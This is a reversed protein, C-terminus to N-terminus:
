FANFVLGSLGSRILREERIHELREAADDASAVSREGGSMRNLRPCPLKSVTGLRNLINKSAQYFCM